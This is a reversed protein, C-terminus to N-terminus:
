VRKEEKYRKLLYALYYYEFTNKPFRSLAALLHAAAKAQGGAADFKLFVVL